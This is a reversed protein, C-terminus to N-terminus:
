RYFHEFADNLMEQMKDLPANAIKSFQELNIETGKITSYSVVESCFRSFDENSVSLFCQAWYNSNSLEIKMDYHLNTDAVCYKLFLSVRTHLLDNKEKYKELLFKYLKNSYDHNNVEVNNLIHLESESFDNKLVFFLVNWIIKTKDINNRSFYKKIKSVLDEFLLDKKLYEEFLSDYFEDNYNVNEKSANELIQKGIEPFGKNIIYLMVDFHFYAHMIQRQKIFKLIESVFSQYEEETLKSFDM